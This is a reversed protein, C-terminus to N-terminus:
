AAEEDQDASVHVGTNRNVVPMFYEGDDLTWSRGSDDQVVAKGNDIGRLYVEGLEAWAFARATRIVYGREGIQM